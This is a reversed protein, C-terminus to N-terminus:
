ESPSRRPVRSGTRLQDAAPDHDGPRRAARLLGIGLVHPLLTSMFPITLVFAVEAAVTGPPGAVGGAVVAAAVVLGALVPGAVAVARAPGPPVAGSRGLAVALAGCGLYTLVVYAVQLLDFWVLLFALYPPEGALGPLYEAASWAREEVAAQLGSAGSAVVAWRGVLNALYGTSGVVLAVVALAAPGRGSGHARLALRVAAVLLVAAAALLVVANLLMAGPHRATPAGTLGAMAFVGPGALVLAAATRDEGARLARLLLLVGAVYAADLLLFVPTPFLGGLTHALVLVLGAPWAAWAAARLGPRM